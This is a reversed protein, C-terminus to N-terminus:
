KKAALLRGPVEFFCLQEVRERFRKEKAADTSFSFVDFGHPIHPPDHLDTKQESGAKELNRRKKWSSELGSKRGEEFGSKLTKPRGPVRWISGQGEFDISECHYFRVERFFCEKEVFFAGRSFSMLFSGLFWGFLSWFLAKQPHGEKFKQSKETTAHDNKAQSRRPGSKSSGPCHIPTVKPGNQVMKAWKQVM